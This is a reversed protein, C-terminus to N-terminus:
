INSAVRRIEMRPRGFNILLCLRKGTARLYNMCQALHEDALVKVVKLEIIITDDIMLDATYEGVVTDQYRVVIGRQRVVTLGRKRMEIARANEYVKEAFGIGLTNAVAFACGIMREGLGNLEAEDM